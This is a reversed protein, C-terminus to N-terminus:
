GQAFPHRSPNSRQKPWDELATLSM